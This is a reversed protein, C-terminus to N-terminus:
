AGFYQSNTALAETYFRVARGFDSVMLTVIGNRYM